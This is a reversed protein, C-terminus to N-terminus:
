SNSQTSTQSSAPKVPSPVFLGFLSLMGGYLFNHKLALIGAPTFLDDIKQTTTLVQHVTLAGGSVITVGISKIITEAHLVTARSKEWLSKATELGSKLATTLTTLTTSM